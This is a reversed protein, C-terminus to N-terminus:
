LKTNVVCIHRNYVPHPVWIAGRSSYPHLKPAEGQGTQTSEGHINECSIDIFVIKPRM